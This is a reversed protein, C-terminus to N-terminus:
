PTIADLQKRLVGARMTLYAVRPAIAPSSSRVSLAALSDLESQVAYLEMRMELPTM